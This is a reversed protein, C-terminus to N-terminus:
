GNKRPTAPYFCPPCVAQLLSGGQFDKEGDPGEPKKNTAAVIRVDVKTIDGSGVPRVEGEQIVRLLKAQFNLSMDGVEDLFRQVVVMSDRDVLAPQASIKTKFGNPYGAEALLQKAKVL